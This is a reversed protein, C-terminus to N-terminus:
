PSGTCVSIAEDIEGAFYHVTSLKVLSRGARHLDGATRFLEEARQFLAFANSFRRQARRLSGELDSLVAEEFPDRTGCRLHDYASAFAQEAGHLDSRVRRANALYGWARARLDKLSELGYFGADLQDALHLALGALAEAEEADRTATALSREILLELVGWTRFRSDSAVLAARTGAPQRLLEVFLEPAESREVMLAAAFGLTVRDRPLPPTPPIPDLGPLGAPRLPPGSKLRQRCRECECLHFLVARGEDGQELLFAELHLDTPHRKM